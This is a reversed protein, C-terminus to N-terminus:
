EGDTAKKGKGRKSDSLADALNAQAELVRDLKGAERQEKSEYRRELAAMKTDNGGSRHAIIEHICACPAQDSIPSKGDAALACPEGGRAKEPIHDSLGLGKPCSGIPTFGQGLKEQTIQLFYPDSNKPKGMGNFVQVSVVHGAPNVMRIHGASPIKELKTDGDSTRVRLSPPSWRGLDVADGQYRSVGTRVLRDLQAM